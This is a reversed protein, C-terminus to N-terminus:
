CFLKGFVDTSTRDTMSLRRCSGPVPVIRIRGYKGILILDVIVCTRELQQLHEFELACIEGRRVGAGLPLGLIARDRKERSLTHIRFLWSHKPRGSTNWPSGTGPDGLRV